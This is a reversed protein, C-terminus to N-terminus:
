KTFIMLGNFQYNFICVSGPGQNQMDFHLYNFLLRQYSVAQEMEFAATVNKSYLTVNENFVFHQQLILAVVTNAFPAVMSTGNVRFVLDGYFFVKSEVEQNPTVKLNPQEYLYGYSNNLVIGKTKFCPVVKQIKQIPLGIQKFLDRFYEEGKTMDMGDPLVPDYAKMLDIM